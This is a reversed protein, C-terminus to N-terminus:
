GGAAARFLAANAANRRELGAGRMVCERAATEWDQADLAEHLRPWEPSLLGPRVTSSTGLAYGMSATATFAADSWSAADPWRALIADAIADYRRLALEDIAADDLHLADSGSNYLYYGAVHGGEMDKIIEYEDRIEDTTATEGTYPHRWPLELASEVSVLACGVGCTVLPPHRSDLYMWSCRGEFPENFACWSARVAPHLPSTM